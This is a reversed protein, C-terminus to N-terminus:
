YRPHKRLASGPLSWGGSRGALPFVRRARLGPRDQHAAPVRPGQQTRHPLERGSCSSTIRKKRTIGPTGPLSGQLAPLPCHVPDLGIVPDCGNMASRVRPSGDRSHPPVERCPIIPVTNRGGARNKPDPLLRFGFINVSPMPLFNNQFFGRKVHHDGGKRWGQGRAPRPRM